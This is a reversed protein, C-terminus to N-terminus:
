NHYTIQNLISIGNHLTSMVESKELTVSMTFINGNQLNRQIKTPKMTGPIDISSTHSRKLM